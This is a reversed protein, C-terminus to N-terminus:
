ALKKTFSVTAKGRAHTLGTIINTIEILIDAANAAISIHDITGKVRFSDDVYSPLHFRFNMSLLLCNSGPLHVGVIRSALSCFIAGHAVRDAFGRDTAFDLNVHLPSNDGSLEVFADIMSKSLTIEFFTSQGVYLDEIAYSSINSM